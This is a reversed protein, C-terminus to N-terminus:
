GVATFLIRECALWCFEIAKSHQNLLISFYIGDQSLDFGVIRKIQSYSYIEDARSLNLANYDDGDDDDDDDYGRTGGVSVPALKVEMCIFATMRFPASATCTCMSM